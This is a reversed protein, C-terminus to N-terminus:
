READAFYLRSIEFLEASVNELKPKPRFLYSVRIEASMEHFIVEIRIYSIGYEASIREASEWGSWSFDVVASFSQGSLQSCFTSNQESEEEIEHDILVTVVQFDLNQAEKFLNILQQETSEGILLVKSTASFKFLFLFIVINLPGKM